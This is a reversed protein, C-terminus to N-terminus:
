TGMHMTWTNKPPLSTYTYKPNTSSSIHYLWRCCFAVAVSGSEDMETVPGYSSLGVWLKVTDIQQNLRGADQDEWHKRETSLNQSLM